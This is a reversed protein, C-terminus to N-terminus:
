IISQLLKDLSSNSDSTGSASAIIKRKLSISESISSAALFHLTAELYPIPTSLILISLHVSNPITTVFM